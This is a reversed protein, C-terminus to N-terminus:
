ATYIYIYLYTDIDIVYGVYIYRDIAIYIYEM